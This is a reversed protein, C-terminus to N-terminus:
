EPKTLSRDKLYMKIDDLADEVRGSIEPDNCSLKLAPLVRETDLKGHIRALHGRCTAALGRIAPDNNSLFELFRDQSWRWDRDYFAVCVLASCIQRSDWSMFAKTAARRSIPIPQDFIWM